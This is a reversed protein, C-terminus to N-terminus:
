FIGVVPTGFKAMGHGFRPAWLGAIYPTAAQATGRSIYTCVVRDTNSEFVEM